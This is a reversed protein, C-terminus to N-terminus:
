NTFDRPLFSLRAREPLRGPRGGKGWYAVWEAWTVPTQKLNIERSNIAPWPSEQDDALRDPIIGNLIAFPDSLSKTRPLIEGDITLDYYIRDHPHYLPDPFIVLGEHDVLMRALPRVVESNEIQSETLDVSSEALFGALAVRFLQWQDHDLQDTWGNHLVDAVIWGHECKLRLVFPQPNDSHSLELTVSLDTIGLNSLHVPHDRFMVTSNIVRVLEREIFRHLAEGVHHLKWTQRVLSTMRGTRVAKLRTRRIRELLKPITGSHFGPYLLRHMSEGHHGIARPQIVRPRNAEYLKWNEKLEWVIFGIAGPIVSMILTALSLATKPDDGYFQRIAGALVPIMPILFKHSVTVVPFHKIPNIQPEVLLNFVFRFVYLLVGWLFGVLGSTFEVLRGSRRRYRIWEDIAYLARNVTESLRDFIDILFRYIAVLLDFGFRQWLWKFWEGIHEQLDRGARSNVAIIMSLYTFAIISILQGRRALREEPIFTYIILTFVLPKFIWKWSLIIWRNGFVLKIIPAALVRRPWDWLLGRLYIGVRRLSNLISQRFKRHHIMCLMFVGVLFVNAPNKLPNIAEPVQIHLSLRSLVWHNLEEPIFFLGGMLMFSGLFPLILFWTILRGLPQAFVASSARQLARLYIEGEHYIGPLDDEILRDAQLLNDGAWWQQFGELDKLKINNRSITDRLQSLGFYGNEVITDILEDVVSAFAVKEPMNASVLGAGTLNKELIPRVYIRFREETDHISKLLLRRLIRKVSEDVQLGPLRNLATRLHRMMLVLAIDPLPKRAPKRGMSTIFGAWDMVYISHEIDNVVKQLDYLLRSNRTWFGGSDANFIKILVFQWLRTDGPSELAEALRSALRSIPVDPHVEAASNDNLRRGYRAAKRLWRAAGVYNGSKEAKIGLAVANQFQPRAVSEGGFIQNVLRNQLLSLLGKNQHHTINDDNALRPDVSAQDLPKELRIAYEHFDGDAIKGHTSHWQETIWELGAWPSKTEADPLQCSEYLRSASIESNIWELSKQDVQNLCPFVLPLAEPEFWKLELYVAAFEALVQADSAETHIKRDHLLVTRIEKLISEGLVVQWARVLSRRWQGMVRKSLLSHDVQAHFLRRWLERRQRALSWNETERESLRRLLIWCHPRPQHPLIELEDDDILGVLDEDMIVALHEHLIVRGEEVLSHRERSIRRLIREPVVRAYPCVNIVLSNDTYGFVAPGDYGSPDSLSASEMIEAAKKEPNM